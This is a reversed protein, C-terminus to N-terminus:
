VNFRFHMVDGDKVVYEKGESRLKGAEKAGQEGSYAIYDDYSIVEARIFGKTFDTHIVGAAEPAMAGIRVTWARVEQPGATFYTQLGLLHYASQVLRTLGSEELGYTSLFEGQEEAPLTSLEAELQACIPVLWESSPIISSLAHKEYLEEATVGIQNEGVNAVILLPKATLLQLERIVQYDAETEPKVTSAPQENELAAYVRECYALCAAAEKDNGRAAKAYRDKGKGITELDALILELMVTELDAKPDIRGNVHIVDPHEFFRAVLIIAATQRINALFKNGLGEGQSAGKIIGAIDYFEVVAPIVKEPKVLGSLGGLRADPVEVIGINPDITCFPYNSAVAQGNKVLANFLTSKGVNPLGVIGLSLNM